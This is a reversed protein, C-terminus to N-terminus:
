KAAFSDLMENVKDQYKEIFEQVVVIKLEYIRNNNLSVIFKRFIKLPVGKETQETEIVTNKSEGSRESIKVTALCQYFDRSEETGFDRSHAEFVFPSNENVPILFEDPKILKFDENEFMEREYALKSEKKIKTSVYVMLAVIIVGVILIEM